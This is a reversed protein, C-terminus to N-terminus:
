NKRDLLYKTLDTLYDTNEFNELIKVADNTLQLSIEKSKELGLLTVYTSKESNEDKGITKGMEEFSGEVDLIDDVIQFARGLYEAYKKAYDILDERGALVCGMECSAEILAGTKLTQLTNLEDLSIKRKESEIDIVQGGIMGEVGVAHSIIKILKVATEFSIIGKLAYDSIIEFPLTNLADGALLAISEPFKKHCSPRGRRFDDNDMCPLDDHILSFTHIMEICCAIEVYKKYDGGCIRCFELMLMPRIRKGGACLSYEMAECIIERLQPRKECIKELANNIIERYEDFILKNKETM